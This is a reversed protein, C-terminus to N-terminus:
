PTRTIVRMRHTTTSTGVIKKTALSLERLRLKFRVKDGPRWYKYKPDTLSRTYTFGANGPANGDEGRAFFPMWGPSENITRGHRV